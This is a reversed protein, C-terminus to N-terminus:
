WKFCETYGDFKYSPEYNIKLEKFYKKLEQEIPFLEEVKGSIIEIIEKSKLYQCLSSLRLKPNNSLGIKYFVGNDDELKFMYLNTETLPNYKYISAYSGSNNEYSCKPCNTNRLRLHNNPKVQFDGHELCTLVINSNGNIYDVKSYDYIDGYKNKSLLKFALNKDVAITITPKNRQNIFLNALVKYVIGLNDEVILLTRYEKVQNILIYKNEGWIYDIDSQKYIITKRPM